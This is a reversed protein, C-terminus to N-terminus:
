ANQTPHSRECPLCLRTTSIAILRHVPIPRRCLECTGFTGRSLRFLAADIEALACRAGATLAARVEGLAASCPADAEYSLSILQEHRFQREQELERRFWAVDLTREALPVRESAVM